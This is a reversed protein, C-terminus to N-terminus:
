GALHRCLVLGLLALLNATGLWIWARAGSRFLYVLSQVGLWIPAVLWMVFQTKNPAGPGEGCWAALGALAFALGLGLVLGASTKGIWDRQMGAM